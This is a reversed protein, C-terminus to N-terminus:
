QQPYWNSGVVKGSEPKLELAGNNKIRGHITGKKTNLEYAITFHSPDAPDIQGAYFRFFEGGIFRIQEPKDTAPPVWSWKQEGRDSEPHILLSAGDQALVQPVKDEGAISGPL